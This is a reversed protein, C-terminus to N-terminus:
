HLLLSYLQLIQIPLYISAFLYDQIQHLSCLGNLDESAYLKSFLTDLDNNRLLDTQEPQSLFKHVLEKFKKPYYGNM